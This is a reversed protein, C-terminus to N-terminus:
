ASVAVVRNRGQEKAKYLATDARKLLSEVCQDGPALITLGVSLTVSIQVDGEHFTENMIRGRIREALAVAENLGTGPSVVLFEEGGIRGVLDYRRMSDRVLHAVRKLVFDGFPHGYSDNIRKFHDLDIIMICLPESLRTSRESEEELRKMIVRRNKLGTLEDTTAQKKLTRQVDDLKIVLRWTLFYTVVVLFLITLVASITILLRITTAEKVMNTAPITISIAGIISGIRYGQTHHCELCTQDVFLPTIYRFIPPNAKDLLRAALKEGHEFRELAQQEFPDPRNNRDLPKMSILRFRVGGERESMRSIETAMIAHNRLTFMRGDSGHIDPKIGLAELYSNTETGKKKEVYVGGYNFNWRKAHDLLDAYAAAQEQIRQLMQDSTRTYLYIFLCTVLLSITICLILLFLRVHEFYAFPKPWVKSLMSSIHKDGQHRTNM